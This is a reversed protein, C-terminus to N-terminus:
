DADSFIRVSTSSEGPERRLNTMFYLTLNSIIANLIKYPMDTLM